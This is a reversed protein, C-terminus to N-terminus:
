NTKKNASKNILVHISEEIKRPNKIYQIILNESREDSTHLHIDGASSLRDWLSIKSEINTIQSYPISHRTVKFFKFEYSIHDKYFHYTTNSLVILKFILPSITLVILIIILYLIISSTSYSIIKLTTLLFIIGYAVIVFISPYLLNKVFLPLLANLLSPKLKLLPEEM